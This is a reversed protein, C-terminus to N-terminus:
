EVAECKANKRHIGYIFSSHIPTYVQAAETTKRVWQLCAHLVKRKGKEAAARMHKAQWNRSSERRCHVEERNQRGEAVRRENQVRRGCLSSPLSRERRRREEGRESFSFAM